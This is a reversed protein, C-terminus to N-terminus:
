SINWNTCHHSLIFATVTFHPSITFAIGVIITNSFFLGFVCGCLFTLVIVVTAYPLATAYVFASTLVTNIGSIIVQASM